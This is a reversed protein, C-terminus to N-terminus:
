SLITGPELNDFCDECLSRLLLLRGQPSVRWFEALGPNTWLAGEAVGRNCELLGDLPYAPPAEGIPVWWAPWGTHDVTSRDLITRLDRLNPRQFEGDVAYVIRYTGRPLEPNGLRRAPDFEEM